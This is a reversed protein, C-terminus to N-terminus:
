YSWLTLNNEEAYQVAYDGAFRVFSEDENSMSSLSGEIEVYHEFYKVWVKGDETVTIVAFYNEFGATRFITQTKM